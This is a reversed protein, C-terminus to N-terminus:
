DAPPTWGASFIELGIFSLRKFAMKRAPYFDGSCRGTFIHHRIEKGIKHVQMGINVEDHIYGIFRLHHFAQLLIFDIKSQYGNNRLV